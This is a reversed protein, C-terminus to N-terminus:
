RFGTAHKRGKREKVFLIPKQNLILDAFGEYHEALFRRVYRCELNTSFAEGLLPFTRSSVPKM